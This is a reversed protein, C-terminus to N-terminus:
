SARRCDSQMNDHALWARPTGDEGKKTDFALGEVCPSAFDRCNYGM